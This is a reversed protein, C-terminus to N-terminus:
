FGQEFISAGLKLLLMSLSQICLAIVILMRWVEPNDLMHQLCTSVVLEIVLLFCVCILKQKMNMPGHM